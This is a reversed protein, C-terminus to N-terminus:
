ETGTNDDEDNWWPKFTCDTYGRVSNMSDQLIAYFQEHDINMNVLAGRLPYKYWELKFGSPKHWFHWSNLDESDETESWNYPRVAFVENDVRADGNCYGKMIFYWLAENVPREFLIDCQEHLEM